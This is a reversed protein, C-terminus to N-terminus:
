LELEGNWKDKRLPPPALVKLIFYFLIGFALFTLRNEILIELVTM